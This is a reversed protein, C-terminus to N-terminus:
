KVEMIEELKKTGLIPAEIEGEIECADNEEVGKRSEKRIRALELM